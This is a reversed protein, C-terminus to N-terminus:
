MVTFISEDVDWIRDHAEVLIEVVEQLRSKSVTAEDSQESALRDVLSKGRAIAGTVEQAFVISWIAKAGQSDAVHFEGM